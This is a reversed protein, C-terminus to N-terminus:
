RHKALVEGLRGAAEAFGHETAGFGIRFHAPM